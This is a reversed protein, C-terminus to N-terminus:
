TYYPIFTEDKEWKQLPTGTVITTLSTAQSSNVILRAANSEKMVNNERSSKGMEVHHDTCHIEMKFFKVSWIIVFCIYHISIGLRDWRLMEATDDVEENSTPEVYVGLCALLFM